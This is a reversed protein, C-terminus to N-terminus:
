SYTQVLFYGDEQASLVQGQWHIKGNEKSLFWKGNLPQPKEKQANKGAAWAGRLQDLGYKKESM